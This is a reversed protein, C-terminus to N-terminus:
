IPRRARLWRQQRRVFAADVVAGHGPVFVADAGGAALVAQLTAPWSAVDSGTEIVPDGSQEILDGCFVVTREGPVVVILDHTTHGRGPHQISVIRDGLDIGGSRLQHSPASMAAIARDIDAADAGHAIADARLQARGTSMAVAVEPACHIEADGFWGAGLAHDFHSHTLVIHGIRLGTLEEADSEIAQAETLTTGSDVLLAETEGNVLGVTVDLFPLRTRWVGRGLREWDYNM